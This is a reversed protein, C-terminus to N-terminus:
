TGLKALLAGMRPDGGAPPVWEVHVVVVDNAQMENAFGELGVNIVRAKGALLRKAGERENSEM